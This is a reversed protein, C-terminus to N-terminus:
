SVATPTSIMASTQIPEGNVAIAFSIPSAPTADAPLAVNAGFM